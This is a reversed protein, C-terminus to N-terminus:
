EESWGITMEGGPFDGSFKVSSWAGCVTVNALCCARYTRMWHPVRAVPQPTEIQVSDTKSLVPELGVASRASFWVAVADEASLSRCPACFATSPLGFM